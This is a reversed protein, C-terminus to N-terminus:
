IDQTVPWRPIDLYPFKGESTQSTSIFLENTLNQRWGAEALKLPWSYAVKYIVVVLGRMPHPWSRLTNPANKGGM